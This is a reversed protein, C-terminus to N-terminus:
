FILTINNVLGAITEARHEQVTLFSSSLQTHIKVQKIKYSYFFHWKLNVQPSESDCQKDESNSIIISQCRIIETENCQIPPVLLTIQKIILLLNDETQM